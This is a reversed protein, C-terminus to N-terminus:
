QKQFIIERTGVESSQELSLLNDNIEFIFVGDKVKSDAFTLSLKNVTTTYTFVYEHAPLILVGTGDKDFRYTTVGDVTWRGVLEDQRFSEEVVTPEVVAVNEDSPITGSQTKPKLNNILAVEGSQLNLISHDEEDYGSVQHNGLTSPSAEQKEIDSMTAVKKNMVSTSAKVASVTIRNQMETRKAAMSTMPLVVLLIVAVLVISIKRINRNRM